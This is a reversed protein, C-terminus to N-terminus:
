LAPRIQLNQVTPFNGTSYTGYFALMSQTLAANSVVPTFTVTYHAYSTTVPLAASLGGYKAGSGNQFYATITSNTSTNASKLDFQLEYKILGYQDIIPAMDVYQMFENTGHKIANSYYVFTSPSQIRLDYSNNDTILYGSGGPFLETYNFSQDGAPTVCINAAAPSPCDTISGPYGSFEASYLEVKKRTSNLDALYRSQIARKQVGNFAVVTIAALVAIVVVVILLEVITFGKERFGAWRKKM